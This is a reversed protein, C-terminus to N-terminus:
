IRSGQQIVKTEGKEWPLSKGNNNKDALHQKEGTPATFKKSPVQNLDEDTFPRPDQIKTTLHDNMELDRGPEKDSEEKTTKKGKAGKKRQTQLPSDAPPTDSFNFKKMLTAALGEISGLGNNGSTVLVDPIIKM